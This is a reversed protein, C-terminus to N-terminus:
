QRTQEEATRMWALVIMPLAYKDWAFPILMLATANALVVTRMLPVGRLVLRTVAASALLWLLGLRVIDPFLGRLVRDLAGMSVISAHVNGIPPFVAFVALLVLASCGLAVWALRRRRGSFLIAELVVHYAGLCALFYLGNRPFVRGAHAASEVHVPLSAPPVPGGYVWYWAGLSLLALAPGALRAVAPGSARREPLLEWLCLAAPFAVMTQRSAVALILAAAAWVYRGRVHLMVGVVAFLAAVMDTYLHVACFAFYPFLLLGMAARMRVTLERNRPVMIWALLAVAILLNLLRGGVIGLGTLLHLVGFALFPVPTSLEPSGRLVDPTPPLNRAFYVSAFWFRQEDKVQAFDFIRTRTLAGTVLVILVIIAVARGTVPDVGTRDPADAVLSM